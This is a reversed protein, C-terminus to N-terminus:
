PAAGRLWSPYAEVVLWWVWQPFLLCLAGGLALFPGFPVYRNSHRFFFLREDAVPDLEAFAIYWRTQEGVPEVRALRGKAEVVADEDELIRVAPLCLRVDVETGAARQPVDDVVLHEGKFRVRSRGVVEGGSSFTATCPLARLRGVLVIAIGVVSGGVCAITLGLLVHLPGILAGIFALLKVDGLGMAERKKLASALWRIALLIGAGMAAGALALSLRDLWPPLGGFLSAPRMPFRTWIAAVLGLVLGPKSIADPIIKHEWDIFSIAVLAALAAAVVAATPLHEHWSHWAAVFLLGTFLEVLPYRFSIPERCGRCRGRLMLWSFVPINEFWRIARACRPCHSPPRSLSEGRPLRWVVVNLFSGVVLGFSGAFAFQFVREIPM